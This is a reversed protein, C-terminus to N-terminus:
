RRLWCRMGQLPVACRVRRLTGLSASRDVDLALAPATVPGAFGSTIATGPAGDTSGAAVSHAATAVVVLALLALAILRAAVATLGKM